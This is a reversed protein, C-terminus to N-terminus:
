TARKKSALYEGLSPGDPTPDSTSLGLGAILRSASNVARTHEEADWSRGALMDAEQREASVLLSAINRLIIQDRPMAPRITALEAALVAILARHRKAWRTRGDVVGRCRPAIEICNAEM